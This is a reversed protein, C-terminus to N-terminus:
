LTPDFGYGDFIRQKMIDSIDQTGVSCDALTGSCGWVLNDSPSFKAIIPEYLAIDYLKDPSHNIFLSPSTIRFYERLIFICRLVTMKTM